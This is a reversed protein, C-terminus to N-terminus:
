VFFQYIWRWRWRGMGYLIFYLGMILMLVVLVGFGSGGKWTDGEAVEGTAEAGGSEVLAEVVDDWDLEPEL